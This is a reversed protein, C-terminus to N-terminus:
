KDQQSLSTEVNPEVDKQENTKEPSRQIYDDEMIKDDTKPDDMNM